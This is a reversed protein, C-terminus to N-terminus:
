TVNKTKPCNVSIQLEEPVGYLWTRENGLRYAVPKPKLVIHKECQQEVMKSDGVLISMACSKDQVMNPINCMRVSGESCGLLDVESILMHKQRNASIAIFPTEFGMIVSIKDKIKDSVVTEPVALIRYLDFNNLPTILPVQVFICLTNGWVAPTAILWGYATHAAEQTVPM